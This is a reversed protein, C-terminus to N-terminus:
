LEKVELFIGKAEADGRLDTMNFYHKTKDPIRLDLTRNAVVGDIKIDRDLDNIYGKVVENPSAQGSAYTKLRPDMSKMSAVEKDM